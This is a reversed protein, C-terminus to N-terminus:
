LKVREYVKDRTNKVMGLCNVSVERKSRMYESLRNVAQLVAAKTHKGLVAQQAVDVNRSISELWTQVTDLQDIMISTNSYVDVLKISLSAFAKESTKYNSAIIHSGVAAATVGGTATAAGTAITTIGLGIATGIGVTFVGAIISAGVGVTAVGAAAVSTGVIGGVVRAGIKKAKAEQSKEKCRCEARCAENRINECVDMAEQQKERAESLLSEMKHLYSLLDKYDGREIGDRYEKEIGDECGYYFIDDVADVYRHFLETAHKLERFFSSLQSEKQIEDYKLANYAEVAIEVVSVYKEVVTPLQNVFNALELPIKLASLLEGAMRSLANLSSCKQM